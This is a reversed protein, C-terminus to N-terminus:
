RAMEDDGGGALDVGDAACRQFSQLGAMRPVEVSKTGFDVM